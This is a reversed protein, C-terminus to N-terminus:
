QIIGDAKAQAKWALFQQYDATFKADGQKDVTVFFTWNGDSPSLAAKLSAAGPSDIPTPPLGVHLYTNYPSAIQLDSQSLHGKRQPLVYNITSDLQLKMHKALRNYIVRAVRPYDATTGAEKEIISAITLVEYPTHHVKDQSDQLDINFAEDSFAAVMQQMAAVAAEHPDAIRPDFQYTLPYLFGELNTPTAWAPLDIAAPNAAATALDAPQLSTGKAILALSRTLPTGEPLTVKTRLKSDPKLLLAVAAAASMHQLLQYYGPAVKTLTTGRGWAKTFAGASRVVHDNVMALGVEHLTSKDAVQVIEQGTGPGTYDRTSSFNDVIQNKGYDVLALLGGVLAVSVIFSIVGRIWRKRSRRPRKPRPEGSGPPGGRAPFLGLDLDTM